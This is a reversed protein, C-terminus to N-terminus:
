LPLNDDRTVLLVEERM